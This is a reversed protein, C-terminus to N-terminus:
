DITHHGYCIYVLCLSKSIIYAVVVFYQVIIICALKKTVLLDCVLGMSTSVIQESKDDYAIIGKMISNLMKNLAINVWATIKHTWTLEM